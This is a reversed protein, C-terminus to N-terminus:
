SPHPIGPSSLSLASVCPLLVLLLCKSWIVYASIFNETTIAKRIALASGAAPAATPHSQSYSPAAPPARCGPGEWAGPGPPVM